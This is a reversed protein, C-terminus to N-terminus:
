ITLSPYIHVMSISRKESKSPTQKGPSVKEVFLIPNWMGTTKQTSKCILKGFSFMNCLWILAPFNSTTHRYSKKLSIELYHSPIPVPCHVWMNEFLPPSILSLHDVFIVNQFVHFFLVIIDIPHSVCLSMLSVEELLMDFAHHGLISM